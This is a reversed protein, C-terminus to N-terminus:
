LRLAETSAPDEVWFPRLEEPGVEKEDSLMRNLLRRWSIRFIGDLTAGARRM